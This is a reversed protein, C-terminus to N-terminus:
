TEGTLTVTPVGMWLAECTTTGGTYPFTDLVMDVKAYSQLYASRHAPGRVTVRDAHIGVRALRTLIQEVYLPRGTQHSQLLLRADPLAAFVQQWLGLVSDTIKPLRQFCGFTIYGRELAPLASVNPTTGDTPPTFCLRTQPLRWVKETFFHESGLPVCVDDALVYDMASVGTSAFYGLWSVQVPAPRLGFVPLRNDGTHGALDLLIDIQDARIAQAAAEDTQGKLLHWRSFRPRIRATLEDAKAITPYAFLEFKSPDLHQLIGELFFGVPHTRLDGSVFGVRLRGGSARPRDRGGFPRTKLKCNFRRAEALYEDPSCRDDM